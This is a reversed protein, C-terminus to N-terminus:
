NSSFYNLLVIRWHHLMRKPALLRRQTSMIKLPKRLSEPFCEGLLGRFPM